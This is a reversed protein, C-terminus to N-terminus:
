IPSNALPRAPASPRIRTPMKRPLRTRGSCDAAESAAALAQQAQQAEMNVRDREAAVRKLEACLRGNWGPDLRGVIVNEKLGRLSTSRAKRQRKPLFARQKRSRHRRSSRAHRCALSKYDRAAGPKGEPPRKGDAKFQVIAQRRIGRPRYARRGPYTSDGVAQVEVKQMM